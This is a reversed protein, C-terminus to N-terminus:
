SYEGRRLSCTSPPLGVTGRAEWMVASEGHLKPGYGELSSEACYIFLYVTM